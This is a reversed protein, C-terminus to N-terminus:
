VLKNREYKKIALNLDGIVRELDECLAEKETKGDTIPLGADRFQRNVDERIDEVTEANTGFIDLISGIGRFFSRWSM